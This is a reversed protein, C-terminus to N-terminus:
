ACYTTELRYTISTNRSASTPLLEHPCIPSSAPVPALNEARRGGEKGIVYDRACGAAYGWPGPQVGVPAGAVGREFAWCAGSARPTPALVPPGFDNGCGSLIELQTRIWLRETHEAKHYNSKM